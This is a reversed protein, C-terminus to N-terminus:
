QVKISFVMNLHELIGLKSTTHGLAADIGEPLNEPKVRGSAPLFPGSEKPWLWQAEGNKEGPERQTEPVLGHPGRQPRSAPSRGRSKGAQIAESPPVSCTHRPSRVSRLGPDEVLKLLGAQLLLNWSQGEHSGLNSLCLLRSHLATKCYYYQFRIRESRTAGSDLPGM